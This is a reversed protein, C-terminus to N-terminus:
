FPDRGEAPTEDVVQSAINEGFVLLAILVTIVVLADVTDKLTVSGRELDIHAEVEAKARLTRAAMTWMVEELM